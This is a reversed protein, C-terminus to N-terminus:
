NLRTVTLMAVPADFKHAGDLVSAAYGDQNGVVGPHRAVYNVDDRAANFGEGGDAPGPITGALESNGETGADYIPLYHMQQDGVALGSIDIGTVGAFADNTNVLMTASTLYMASDSVRFTVTESAGPLIIGSGSATAQTTASTLFGRNDGSEALVELSASAAEGINWGKVSSDHVLVALPSFPQSHTLNLVSVQYESMSPMATAENNDDGCGSVVAGMLGLAAIMMVRRPLDTKQRNARQITTKM